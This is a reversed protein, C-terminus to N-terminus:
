LRLLRELVDSSTHGDWEPAKELVPAFRKCMDWYKLPLHYTIQHGKEKGMWLIFWWDYKSGDSHIESMWTDNWWSNNACVMCLKMWLVIRHDYLEKFTHYGDSINERDSEHVDDQIESNIIEVNSPWSIM